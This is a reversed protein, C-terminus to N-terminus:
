VLGDIYARGLRNIKRVARHDSKSARQFQPFHFAGLKEEDERVGFHQFLTAHPLPTADGATHAPQEPAPPHPIENVALVHVFGFSANSGPVDGSSCVTAANGPIPSLRASSSRLRSM